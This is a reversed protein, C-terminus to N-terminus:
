ISAPEFEEPQEILVDDIGYWYGEQNDMYETIQDDTPDSVITKTQTVVQPQHGSFSYGAYIIALALILISASLTKM